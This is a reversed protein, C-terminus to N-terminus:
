PRAPIPTASRSGVTRVRVPLTQLGLTSTSQHALATLQEFPAERMAKLGSPHAAGVQATALVDQLAIEHVDRSEVQAEHHPEQDSEPGRSPQLTARAAKGRRYASPDLEQDVDEIALCAEDRV